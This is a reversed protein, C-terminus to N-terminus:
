VEVFEEGQNRRDVNGRLTLKEREVAAAAAEISSGKEIPFVPALKVITSTIPPKRTKCEVPPFFSLSLSLSLSLSNPIVTMLLDHLNAGEEGRM